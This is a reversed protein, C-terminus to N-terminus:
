TLVGFRYVVPVLRLRLVPRFVLWIYLPLLWNELHRKAFGNFGIHQLGTPNSMIKTVVNKDAIVDNVCRLPLIEYVCPATNIRTRHSIWVLYIIEM